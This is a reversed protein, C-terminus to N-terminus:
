LPNGRGEGPARGLGTISRVERWDGANAPPNKVGLEWRPLGQLIFVVIWISTDLFCKAGFSVLFFRSPFFFVFFCSRPINTMSSLSYALFAIPSTDLHFFLWNWFTQRAGSPSNQCWILLLYLMKLVDFYMFLNILKYSYLFYVCM